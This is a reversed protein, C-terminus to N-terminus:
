HLQGLAGVAAGAVEVTAATVVHLVAVQGRGELVRRATKIHMHGGIPLVEGTGGAMDGLVVDPGAAAIVNNGLVGGTGAPGTLAAIDGGALGAVAGSGMWRVSYSVDFEIIVDRRYGALGAVDWAEGAAADGGHHIPVPAGGALGLVALAVM